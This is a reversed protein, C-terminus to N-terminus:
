AVGKLFAGFEKTYSTGEAKIGWDRSYAKGTKKDRWKRRSVRLVVQKDRIPFDIVKIAPIFGKSELEKEAHEPPPKMKEDLCFILQEGTSDIGTLDFHDTLGKPLIHKLIEEQKIVCIYM